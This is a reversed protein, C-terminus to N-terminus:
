NRERKGVIHPMPGVVDALSFKSKAFCAAMAFRPNCCIARSPCCCLLAPLLFNLFLGGSAATCAIALATPPVMDPPASSEPANALSHFHCSYRSKRRANLIALSLPNTTTDGYDDLSRRVCDRCEVLNPLECGLLDALRSRRCNRLPGNPIMPAALISRATCMAGGCRLLQM